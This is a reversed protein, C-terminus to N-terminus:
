KTIRVRPDVLGYSLDIILNGVLSIAVYFLQVTQAMNYDQNNLSQIYIRGMGQLVFTQEIVLSGGFIGIFWGMILTIVPLLANRWAHSYIVVRERLGKARATRVYDSNLSDIMAARVYRTMGGLGSITMVFLPVALHYMIDGFKEWENAHVVGPTTWGSVPFWGLQVSFIFIALLCLVFSPTSYGVITFVQVGRDFASNRKIACYIGLPITIGLVLILQFVNMLVTNGLRSDVGLAKNGFIVDKCQLQFFSSYGFDLRLVNGLWRFYRIIMPDDLGLRQRAMMYREQYVEESVKGLLEQVDRAAPDGPIANFIFFFMVSLILFVILIYGIRKLVYKGM